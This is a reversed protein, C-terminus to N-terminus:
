RIHIEHFQPSQILNVFSNGPYSARMTDSGKRIWEKEAVDLTDLFSHFRTRQMAEMVTKHMQVARNYQKGSM